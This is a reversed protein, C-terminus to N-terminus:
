IKWDGVNSMNFEIYSENNITKVIGIEEPLLYKQGNYQIVFDNAGNGCIEKRYKTLIVDNSTVSYSCNDLKVRNDSHFISNSVKGKYILQNSFEDEILSIENTLKHYIMRLIEIYHGTTLTKNLDESIYYYLLGNLYRLGDKTIDLAFIVQSRSYILSLGNKTVTIKSLNHQIANRLIKFIRYCEKQIKEEDAIDPLNTYHNKFTDGEKLNHKDELWGDYLTFLLMITAIYSKALRYEGSTGEIIGIGRLFKLCVTVGSDTDNWRADIYDIKYYDLGSSKFLIDFMEKTYQKDM